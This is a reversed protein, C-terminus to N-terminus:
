YELPIRHDLSNEQMRSRHIQLIRLLFVTVTRNIAQKERMKWLLPDGQWDLRSQELPTHVSSINHAPLALPKGHEYSM